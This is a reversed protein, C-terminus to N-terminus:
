PYLHPLHFKLLLFSSFHPPKQCRKKTTAIGIGGLFIYIHRYIIEPIKKNKMQRYVSYKSVLM